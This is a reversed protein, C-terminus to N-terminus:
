RGTVASLLKYCNMYIEASRYPYTEFVYKTNAFEFRDVRATTADYNLDRYTELANKVEAVLDLIGKSTATGILTDSFEINRIFPAIALQLKMEPRKPLTRVVESEEAVEIMICPFAEDPLDQKQGLFVRDGVSAAVTTNALLIAKVANLIDKTKSDAM